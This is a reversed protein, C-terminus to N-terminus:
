KKRRIYDLANQLLVPDDKFTGLGKNCINCLLGRVEGTEHNHDVNLRTPLEVQHKLCILCRGEQEDFMSNYDHITIGYKRLLDAERLRNSHRKRYERQRKKAEARNKDPDKYAM